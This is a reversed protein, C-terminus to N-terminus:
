DVSGIGAALGVGLVFVGALALAIVGGEGEKFPVVATDDTEPSVSFSPVSEFSASDTEAM